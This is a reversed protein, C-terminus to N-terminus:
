KNKKLYRSTIITTSKITNTDVNTLFILMKRLKNALNKNQYNIKKKNRKVVQIYQSHMRVKLFFIVYFISSCASM